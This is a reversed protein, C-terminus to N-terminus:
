GWHVVRGVGTKSMFSHLMNAGVRANVENTAQDFFNVKDRGMGDRISLPFFNVQIKIKVSRQPEEFPKIFTKLVKM